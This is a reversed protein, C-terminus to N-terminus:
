GIVEEWGKKGNESMLADILSLIQERSSSVRIDQCDKRGSSYDTFHLVYAPFIGSEEKNANRAM